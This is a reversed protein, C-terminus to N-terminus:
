MIADTAEIYWRQSLAAKVRGTKLGMEILKSQMMIERGHDSQTRKCWQALDVYSNCPPRLGIFLRMVTANNEIHGAYITPFRSFNQRQVYSHHEEM